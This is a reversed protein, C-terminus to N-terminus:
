PHMAPTCMFQLVMEPNPTGQEVSLTCVRNGSIIVCFHFGVCILLKCWVTFLLVVHPIKNWNYEWAHATEDFSLIQEHWGCLYHKKVHVFTWCM